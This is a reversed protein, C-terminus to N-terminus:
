GFIFVSLVKMWIWLPLAGQAVFDKKFLVRQSAYSDYFPQAVQKQHESIPIAVLSIRNKKIVHMHVLM